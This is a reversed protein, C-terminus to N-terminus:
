VIKIEIKRMTTGVRRNEDFYIHRHIHTQGDTLMGSEEKRNRIKAQSDGVTMIESTSSTITM